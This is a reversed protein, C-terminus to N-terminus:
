VVSSTRHSKSVDKEEVPILIRERALLISFRTGDEQRRCSRRRAEAAVADSPFRMRRKICIQPNLQLSELLSSFLSPLRPIILVEGESGLGGWKREPNEEEGM